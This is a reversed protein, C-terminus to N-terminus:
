VVVQEKGSKVHQIIIDGNREFLIKSRDKSYTFLGNNLTRRASDTVKQPKTNAITVQYYPDRPQGEPNWNFYVTHSNQDWQINNPSIGMWKADKMINEVTLTQAHGFSTYVILILSLTQKM